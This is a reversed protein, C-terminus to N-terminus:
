RGGEGGVGKGGIFVPGRFDRPPLVCLSSLSSPHSRSDGRRSSKEGEGPVDPFRKTCSPSM